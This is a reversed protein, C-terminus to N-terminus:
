KEAESGSKKTLVITIFTSFAGTELPHSNHDKEPRISHLYGIMEYVSRYRKTALDMRVLIEELENKPSVLSTESLGNKSIDRLRRKSHAFHDRIRFIEKTEQFPPSSFDIPIKLCASVLKLKESTSLKREVSNWLGHPISVACFDNVYAELTFAIMVYVNLLHLSRHKPSRAAYALSLEASKYMMYHPHAVSYAEEVSSM